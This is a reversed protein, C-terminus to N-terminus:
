QSNYEELVNDFYEDILVSLRDVCRSYLRKRKTEENRLKSEKRLINNCFNDFTNLDDQINFLYNYTDCDNQINKINLIIDKYNQHNSKLIAILDQNSDQTFLENKNKVLRKTTQVTESLKKVINATQDQSYGKNEKNKDYFNFNEMLLDARSLEDELKKEKKHKELLIHYYMEQIRFIPESEKQDNHYPQQTDENVSTISKYINKFENFKNDIYEISM